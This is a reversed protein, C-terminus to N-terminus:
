KVGRLIHGKSYDKFLSDEQLSAVFRHYRDMGKNKLINLSERYVKIVKQLERNNQFRGDIIVNTIMAGLIKDLDFLTCIKKSNFIMIDGKHDGDVRFGYGKMDELYYKSDQKYGNILHDVKYRAHIVQFFGYGFISIEPKFAFKHRIRTIIGSIEELNLEPSFEIGKLMIQGSCYENYLNASFTNFINLSHGLYIGIGIKEKKSIEKLLELVGINSVRFNTFGLKIFRQLGSKLSALDDNYIISPTNISIRPCGPLSYKKLLWGFEDSSFFSGDLIDGFNSLVIHDAEGELSTKIQHRKVANVTIELGDDHHREEKKAGPIFFYDKLYKKINEKDPKNKLTGRSGAPLITKKIKNYKYLSAAEEDINKDFYKFVRDKPLIESAEEVSLRYLNKKSSKNFSEFHGVTLRRNGKKTWVELIDGKNIPGDSKIYVDGTRSAKKGGNKEYDIKYVRGMFNGVSGSKKLSVIDGPYKDEFYGTGLNRSFIQNLKYLDEPDVRYDSKDEYYRDIYKRYIKTVIGVYEPSKMRGEIKLSDIGAKVLQPVMNITWLDNKSILFSDKETIFVSRKDNKELLRYKMRCPQACRGRNGSRGGIFSSYYCNGSYSYCQSGHGFVEIEILNMKKLEIIEELTMERALVARKFKLKKLFKVSHPNHSNVQTSAHIPTNKFLDAMIKYLGFDQIIIGDNCLSTYEELFLIIDEIEDDKILTNLTLYVKVNRSHAFSVAKGLQKLDFNDAYARAGFREYGLYVSDAGANVAAILQDWGGAPSTLELKKMM